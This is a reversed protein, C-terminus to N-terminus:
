SQSTNTCIYKTAAIVHYQAQSSLEAAEELHFATIRYAISTVTARSDQASCDASVSNSEMFINVKQGQELM